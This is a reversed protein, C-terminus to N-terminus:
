IAKQSEVLDNQSTKLSEFEVLYKENAEKSKEKPVIQKSKGLCGVFLDLIM